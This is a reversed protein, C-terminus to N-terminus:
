GVCIGMVWCMLPSHSNQGLRYLYFRAGVVVVVVYGYSYGKSFLRYPTAEVEHHCTDLLWLSRLYTATDTRGPFIHTRGYVAANINNRTPRAFRGSGPGYKFEPGLWV